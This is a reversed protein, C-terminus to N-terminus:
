GELGKGTGLFLHTPSKRSYFPCVDVLDVYSTYTLLIPALTTPSVAPVCISGLDVEIIM